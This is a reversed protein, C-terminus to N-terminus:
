LKVIRVFRCGSEGETKLLYIGSGLLGLDLRKNESFEGQMM